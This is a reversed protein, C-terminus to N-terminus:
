ESLNLLVPGFYWFFPGNISKILILDINRETSKSLNLPIFALCQILGNERKGLNPHFHCLIGENSNTVYWNIHYVNVNKPKSLGFLAIM